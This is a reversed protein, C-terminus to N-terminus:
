GRANAAIRCPSGCKMCEYCCRVGQTVTCADHRCVYGANHVCGRQMGAQWLQEDTIRLQESM